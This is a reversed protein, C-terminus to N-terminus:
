RCLSSRSTFCSRSDEILFVVYKKKQPWTEIEKLVEQDFQEILVLPRENKTGNRRCPLHLNKAIDRCLDYFPDQKWRCTGPILVVNAELFDLTHLAIVVSSRLTKKLFFCEKQYRKYLSFLPSPSEILVTYVISKIEQRVPYFDLLTSCSQCLYGQAIKESCHLCIAPYLLDFFSHLLRKILSFM